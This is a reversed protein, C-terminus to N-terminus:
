NSSALAGGDLPQQEELLEKLKGEESLTKLDTYGGVLKGNILIIPVTKWGTESKIREIEEPKDTLDISEYAIGNNELFSAARDCYPCPAKKYILVKSM